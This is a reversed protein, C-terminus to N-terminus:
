MTISRYIVFWKIWDLEKSILLLGYKYWSKTEATINLIERQLNNNLIRQMQTEELIYLHFNDFKNIRQSEIWTNRHTPNYRSYYRYIHNWYQLSRLTRRIPDSTLLRIIVQKNFTLSCGIPDVYGSTSNSIWKGVKDPLRCNYLYKGASMQMTKSEL